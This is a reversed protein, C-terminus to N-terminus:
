FIEQLNQQQELPPPTDTRFIINVITGPFAINLKTSKERPKGKNSSIEYFGDYSIIQFKGGNNLIFSKLLKLGHGGPEGKKTTMYEQLAWSIAKHQPIDINFSNAISKSFGIGTDVITFELKNKSFFYQGCVYINETKSHIQANSFIEYISELIKRKLRENINTIQPKNFLESQVLSQFVKSETPKLKIYPITSHYYDEKEKYGFNALFRNKQLIKRIEEDKIKFHIIENNKDIIDIIAGLPASMNAGFWKTLRLEIKCDKRDKFKNYLNIIRKFSAKNSKINHLIYTHHKYRM